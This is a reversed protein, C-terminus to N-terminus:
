PHFGPISFPSHPISASGTGIRPPGRHRTQNTTITNM